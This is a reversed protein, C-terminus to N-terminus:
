RLETPTIAWFSKRKTFRDFYCNINQEDNVKCTFVSCFTHNKPPIFLVIRLLKYDSTPINNISSSFFIRFATYGINPCCSNFNGVCKCREFSRVGKLQSFYFPWCTCHMFVLTSCCYPWLRDYFLLGLDALLSIVFM